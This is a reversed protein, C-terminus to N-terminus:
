YNGRAPFKQRCDTLSIGSLYFILPRLSLWGILIPILQSFGGGGGGGGVVRISPIGGRGQSGRVGGGGGVRITPIGGGGQSGGVGGGGVQVTYLTSPIGGGGQM